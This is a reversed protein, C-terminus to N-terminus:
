DRRKWRRAYSDGRGASAMIHGHNAMKLRLSRPQLIPHRLEVDGGIQEKLSDFGKLKALADWAAEALGDSALWDKIEAMAAVFGAEYADDVRTFRHKVFNRDFCKAILKNM